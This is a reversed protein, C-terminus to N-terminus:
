WGKYIHTRHNPYTEILHRYAREASEESEYAYEFWDIYCYIDAQHSKRLFGEKWHEIGETINEPYDVTIVYEFPRQDM